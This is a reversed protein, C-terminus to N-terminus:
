QGLSKKYACKSWDYTSPRASTKSEVGCAGSYNCGRFSTAANGVNNGQGDQAQTLILRLTVTHGVNPCNYTVIRAVRTTM